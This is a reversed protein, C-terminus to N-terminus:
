LLHLKIRDGFMIIVTCLAGWFLVTLLLPRDTLIVKSPDGSSATNYILYLYRFIGYLVLPVSVVLLHSGVLHVTRNDVTYLIYCVVTSATVISIVQDLFGTNYYALVKRHAKAKEGLMVVEVRRKTFGLFLSITVGCLILWKSTSVSIAAAGAIIRLLFGASILVVDIIVLHKLGMSYGINVVLYTCLVFMTSINLQSLSLALAGGALVFFGVLGTWAPLDGNALPRHRKLPHLRDERIDKFDNFFYIGSSLLCFASFTILAYTVAAVNLVQGSFILATLVFFNKVWQRPRSLKILSKWIRM